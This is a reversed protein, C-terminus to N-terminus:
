PPRQGEARVGLWSVLLMVAIMIAVVCSRANM